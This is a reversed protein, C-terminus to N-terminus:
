NKKYLFPECSRSHVSVDQYIHTSFQITEFFKKLFSKKNLNFHKHFLQLVAPFRQFLINRSM